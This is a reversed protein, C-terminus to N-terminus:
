GGSEGNLLATVSPPPFRYYHTTLVVKRVLKAMHDAVKNSKAWVEALFHDFDTVGFDWLQEGFDHYTETKQNILCLLHAFTLRGSPKARPATSPGTNGIHFSTGPEAVDRKVPFRPLCNDASETTGNKTGVTSDM